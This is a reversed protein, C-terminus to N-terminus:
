ERQDFHRLDPAPQDERMPMLLRDPSLMYHEHGIEVHVNGESCISEVWIPDRRCAKDMAFIWEKVRGRGVSKGHTAAAVAETGRGGGTGVAAADVPGIDHHPKRAVPEGIPAREVGADFTQDRAQPRSSM